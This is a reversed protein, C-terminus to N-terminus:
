GGKRVVRQSYSSWALYRKIGELEEKTTQRTKEKWPDEGWGWQAVGMEHTYVPPRLGAMDEPQIARSAGPPPVWTQYAIIDEHEERSTTVMIARDQPSDNTFM